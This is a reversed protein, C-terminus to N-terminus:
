AGDAEVILSKFFRSQWGLTLERTAAPSLKFHAVLCKAQALSIGRRGSLIDSVRGRGGLLEALDIARLGNRELLYRLAGLPAKM